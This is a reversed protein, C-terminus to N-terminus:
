EMGSYRVFLTNDEPPAATIDIEEIDFEFIFVYAHGNVTADSDLLYAILSHSDMNEKVKEKIEDELAAGNGDKAINRFDKLYKEYGVVSISIANNKM